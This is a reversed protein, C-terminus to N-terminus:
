VAAALETGSRWLCRREKPWGAAGVDLDTTQRPVFGEGLRVWSGALDLLPVVAAPVSSLDDQGETDALVPVVQDWLSILRALNEASEVGQALTLTNLDGPDPWNGSTEVAFVSALVETAVAWHSPARHTRLWELVPRLLLGRIEFATGFDPDIANAVDSLVRLPHQPTSHHPRNDGVALDLLGTVAEPLLYQAASQALQRAAADGQPDVTIGYTQEAERPSALVTRAQAVAFQAAGPGAPRIRVSCRLNQHGM